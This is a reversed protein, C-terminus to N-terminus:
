VFNYSDVESQYRDKGFVKGDAYDDSHDLPAFHRVDAMAGYYSRIAYM